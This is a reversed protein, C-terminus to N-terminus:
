PEFLNTQEGKAGEAIRYVGPKVRIITKNEVMRALTEGTYKDANHYNTGVLAVAQKRTIQGGNARAFELIASQKSTPKKM